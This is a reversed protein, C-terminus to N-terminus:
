RASHTVDFWLVIQHGDSTCTLTRSELMRQSPNQFTSVADEVYSARGNPGCSLEAVISPPDRADEVPIAAEPTKGLDRSAVKNALLISRAEVERQKLDDDTPVIQSAVLFGGFADLMRDENGAARNAQALLWYVNTRGRDTLHDSRVIADLFIAATDPSGARMADISASLMAQAAGPTPPAPLKYQELAPTAQIITPRIPASTACAGTLAALVVPFILRM